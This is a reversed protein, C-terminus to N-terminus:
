CMSLNKVEEDKRKKKGTQRKKETKIECYQRNNDFMIYLIHVEHGHHLKKSIEYLNEM